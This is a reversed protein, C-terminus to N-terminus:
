GEVGVLIEELPHAYGLECKITCIYMCQMWYMIYWMCDFCSAWRIDGNDPYLSPPPLNITLTSIGNALLEAEPFPVTTNLTQELSSTEGNRNFNNIRAHVTFTISEGPDGELSFFFTDNEITHQTNEVTVVYSTITGNPEMPLGWQILILNSNQTIARLNTVESPDPFPLTTDFLVWFLTPSICPLFSVSCPIFWFARLWHISNYTNLACSIM